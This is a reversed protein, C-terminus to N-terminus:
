ILGSEKEAVYKKARVLDYYKRMELIGDVIFVTYYCGQAVDVKLNPFGKKFDAVTKPLEDVYEYEPLEEDEQVPGSEEIVEATPKKKNKWIPMEDISKIKSSDVSNNLNDLAYGRLISVASLKFEAKRSKPVRFSVMETEEGYISVNAM